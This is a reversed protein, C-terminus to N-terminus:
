LVKFFHFCICTYFGVTPPWTAISSYVARTVSKLAQPQNTLSDSNLDCFKTSFDYNFSVCLKVRVCSKACSGIDVTPASWFQFGDLKTNAIVLTDANIDCITTKASKICILICFCSLKLM